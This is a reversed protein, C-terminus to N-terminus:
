DARKKLLECVILDAAARLIFIQEFNKGFPKMLEVSLPSMIAEVMDMIIAAPNRFVDMGLMLM